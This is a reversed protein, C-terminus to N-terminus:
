ADEPPDESLPVVKPDRMRKVFKEDATLLSTGLRRAVAVYSADYASVNRALAISLADTVLEADSPVFSIPLLNFLALAPQRDKSELSETFRIVNTVEFRMLDPAVITRGRGLMSRVIDSDEEPWLVKVVVSADLM